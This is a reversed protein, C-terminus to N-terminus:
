WRAACVELMRNHNRPNIDNRRHRLLAYFFTPMGIPYVVFLLFALSRMQKYRNSHCDMSYDASLVKSGDDFSLCRISKVIQFSV